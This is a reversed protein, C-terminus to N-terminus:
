RPSEASVVKMGLAAVVLADRSVGRGFVGYWLGDKSWQVLEGGNVEFLVAANGAVSGVPTGTVDGLDGHFNEIVVLWGRGAQFVVQIESDAGVGVVQPNDQEPGDYAQPDSSRVVPLWHAALAAGDPLVTPAFVTMPRVSAALRGFVEDVSTPGVPGSTATSSPSPDPAATTSVPAVQTTSSSTSSPVVGDTTSVLVPTTGCGATLAVVLVVVSLGTLVLSRTAGAKGRPTLDSM